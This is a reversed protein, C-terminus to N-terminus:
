SLFNWLEFDTKCNSLLERINLIYNKDDEEKVEHPEWVRLCADEYMQIYKELERRFKKDGYTM